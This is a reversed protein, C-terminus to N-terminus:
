KFKKEFLEPFYFVDYNTLMGGIEMKELQNVRAADFGLERFDMIGNQRHCQSCKVFEKLETGQHLADEIQKKQEPTYKDKEKMYALATEVGQESFFPVWKGQVNHLPILKSYHDDTEAFFGTKPDVVTGYPRGNPTVGPPKVWGFRVAEHMQNKLHCCHCSLFETHLNIIAMAQKNKGHPYPSHCIICTSRDGWAELNVDPTTLHFHEHIQKREQEKVLLAQFSAARPKEVPPEKKREFQVKFTLYWSALASLALVIVFVIWAEIRSSKEHAM